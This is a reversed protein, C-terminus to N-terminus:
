KLYADVADNRNQVHEKLYEVSSDFESDSSLFSYGSLEAYAYEKLLNYYETYIASMRSPEFVDEVFELMYTQYADEYESIDILYKILPWSSSVESLSLSLCGSQQGTQLAENGDWPIWTLHNNEPNNYLYFNHTMKGYTDWNQMVTNAALWKLYTTVDFVAELNTKWQETDSSTRLSSNVATYLSYVDSYDAADLNTKKEMEGEDYTGSAFSAADGDPKYCNGSGDTFQTGLVSDDVEEVLTYVGYYIPGSGHDVYVVCFTTQSSPVGFDRFLDSVVKERMLSGDLYNNKLNLQKFGYFRQDDINNYDDEYQDFDLKFSYKGIGSSYTSSLSSNGKFRIGVQYWEIGNFYFSCPAWIPDFETLEGPRSSSSGLNADLDSQMDAWDDSEIVIDFRLVETQNFVVSYNPSVLDSHTEDTWDSIDLTKAAEEAAEEAEQDAIIEDEERCSQPIILLMLVVAYLLPMKM